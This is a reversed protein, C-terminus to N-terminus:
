RASERLWLSTHAPAMTQQVSGILDARVEDLDVEDRLVDAFADVTRAANYRSRDFRRDVADQVWHRVPQFLALSVLTSAAIAVDSGSTLPSLLRQLALIGVWFTAALAITTAGYVFTRKILLDIDYLRYRLIAIGAAVPILSYAFTLLFFGWDAGAEGLAVNIALCGAVVLGAMGVWKIQQRVQGRSSRWRQIISAVSGLVAVVLLFSGVANLTAAAQADMGLVSEVGALRLVGRPIGSVVALGFLTAVTWWRASSPKGDPFLLLGLTLPMFFGIVFSFFSIISALAAAPLVGPVADAYEAYATTFAALGILPGTIAYLWGISHTPRRSLILSGVLSFALMGVWAFPINYRETPLPDTHPLSLVWRQGILSAVGLALVALAISAAVRGSM